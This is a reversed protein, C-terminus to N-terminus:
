ARPVKNQSLGYLGQGNQASQFGQMKLPAEEEHKREALEAELDLAAEHRGRAEWGAVFGREFAEETM